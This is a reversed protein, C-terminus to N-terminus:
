LQDLKLPKAKGRAIKDLCEKAFETFAPRPTQEALIKEWPDDTAEPFVVLVEVPGPEAPRESLTIQGDQYTARVAKMIQKEPKRQSSVLQLESM